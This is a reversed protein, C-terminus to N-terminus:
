KGTELEAIKMIQRAAGAADEKHYFYELLIKRGELENRANLYLAQDISHADPLNKYDPHLKDIILKRFRYPMGYLGNVSSKAALFSLFNLNFVMHASLIPLAAILIGIGVARIRPRIIRTLERYGHANIVFLIPAIVIYYHMFPVTKTFFIGLHYSLIILTLHLYRRDNTMLTRAMGLVLVVLNLYFIIIAIRNLPQLSFAAMDGGLLWEFWLGSVIQYGRWLSEPFTQGTSSIYGKLQDCIPCQPLSSAINYIFPWAPLSALAFGPLLARWNIRPKYFIYVLFLGPLLFFVSYHLQAALGLSLALIFWGKRDKSFLIGSLAWYFPIMFLPLLSQTWINRAFRIMWPSSAFLIAATFATEPFLKKISRYFGWVMIGNIAAIAGTLAMPGRGILGIAILLYNFLPFNAIGISTPMGVHPLQGTRFFSYTDSWSVIQDIKFESLDIEWLRLATALVLVTFGPIYNYLKEPLYGPNLNNEAPTKKKPM